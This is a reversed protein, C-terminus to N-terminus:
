CTCGFLSSELFRRTPWGCCPLGASLLLLADVAALWRGSAMVALLIKDVGAHMCADVSDTMVIPLKWSKRIPLLLGFLFYHRM